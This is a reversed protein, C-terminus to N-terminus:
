CDIQRMSVMGSLGVKIERAAQKTCQNIKSTIIIQNNDVRGLTGTSTFRVFTKSNSVTVISNAETGQWVKLIDTAATTIVPAAAVDTAASDIFAIWGGTWAGSCTVSDQSACVSVRRARKVAESRAYNLATVLNEAQAVSQSNRIQERFSPIAISIVVALVAIVILLEVLTFGNINRQM